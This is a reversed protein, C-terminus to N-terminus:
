APVKRFRDRTEVRINRVTTQGVGDGLLVQKRLVFFLQDEGRQRGDEVPVRRVHLLHGDRLQFLLKM